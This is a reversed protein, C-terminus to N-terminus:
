ADDPADVALLQPIYVEVLHGTSAFSSAASHVDDDENVLYVRKLSRGSRRVVRVVSGPTRHTLWDM